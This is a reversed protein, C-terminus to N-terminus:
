LDYLQKFFPDLFSLRLDRVWLWSWERTHWWTWLKYSDRHTKTKRCWEFEKSSFHVANELHFLACFWLASATYNLVAFEFSPWFRHMWDLPDRGASYWTCRKCALLSISCCSSVSFKIVQKPIGYESSTLVVNLIFVRLNALRMPQVVTCMFSSNYFVPIALPTCLSCGAPKPLAPKSLSVQLQRCLPVPSNSVFLVSIEKLSWSSDRLWVVDRPSTM